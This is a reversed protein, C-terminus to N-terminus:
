LARVEMAWQRFADELDAEVGARAEFWRIRPDHPKFWNAQRRVFERTARRISRVAEGLTARGQVVDALQRYGLASFAPSDPSVGRGLLGRVEDLWGAALMAEIRADIRAYLEPRPLTLGLRLVHHPLPRRARQGSAPAGTLLCIELARIVRRLNRPDIRAASAPDLQALRAHLAHAGERSAEDELTRRLAPDAPLAPPAWGDLIATVYQGTGGVLLPLRGRRGIGHIAELAALRFTALSWPDDIEAVDILHHPIRARQELTPKATGIDLGRYILRSDASVIEAGIREALAISIATKGVATPGLIAVLLPRPDEAGM